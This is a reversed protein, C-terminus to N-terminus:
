FGEKRVRKRCSYGEWEGLKPGSVLYFREGGWERGHLPYNRIGFGGGRDTANNLRERRRKGKKKKKKRRRKNTKLGQREGGHNVLNKTGRIIRSVENRKKKSTQRPQMAANKIQPLLEAEQKTTTNKLYKKRPSKLNQGILTM